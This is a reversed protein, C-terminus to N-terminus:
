NKRRPRRARLAKRDLRIEQLVEDLDQVRGAAIDAEGVALLRALRAPASEKFVRKRSKHQKSMACSLDELYVRLTTTTLLNKTGSETGLFSIVSNQITPDISQYAKWRHM